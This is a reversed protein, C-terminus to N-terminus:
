KPPPAALPVMCQAAQVFWDSGQQQYVVLCLGGIPPLVTGGPDRLGSLSFSAEEVAIGSSLARIRIPTIAMRTGKLPGSMQAKLGESIAPRGHDSAGSAYTHSGDEAYITALREFDGANYAAEYQKVRARVASEPTAQGAALEALGLTLAAVCLVQFSTTM